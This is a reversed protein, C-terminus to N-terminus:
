RFLDQMWRFNADGDEQTPVAAYGETYGNWTNFVMGRIPLGRLTNLLGRWHDDNGWHESNSWMLHADYGPDVDLIVPLREAIWGALYLQKYLFLVNVDSSGRYVQPIFAQVALFSAQQRLWPGTRKPSAIFTNTVMDDQQYSGNNVDTKEPLLDLTFGIRVGTDEFIKNAVRDFGNAFREDESHELLNSAVHLINVTYRKEGQRDYMQVWKGAWAPDEPQILYRQILDKLQIVLQPAPNAETGPFDSAFHYAPSSGGSGYTGDGSEIAPLILINRGTATRFLEDHAKTSTYMPAEYVWRDSGPEGWYSMTIVNV